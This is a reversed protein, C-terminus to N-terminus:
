RGREPQGRRGLEVGPARLPLDAFVTSGTAPLQDLPLFMGSAVALPIYVVNLVASVAGPGALHAIGFGLAVFPLSGLLLRATLTLWVVPQLHIGGVLGAFLLLCVLSLLCFALATVLRALVIAVPPVPAARMLLDVRQGREVALLSGFSYLMVATVAYSAFSALVYPGGNVSHEVNPLGVIAFIIVPLLITAVSFEPV